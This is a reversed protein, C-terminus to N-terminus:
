SPLKRSTEKEVRLICGRFKSTDPFIQFGCNSFLKELGSQTYEDFSDEASIWGSIRNVNNAEALLTLVKLMEKAWGCNRNKTDVFLDEIEIQKEKVSFHLWGGKKKDKDRKDFFNIIFFNGRYPNIAPVNLIEYIVDVSRKDKWSGTRIVKREKRTKFFTKWVRLNFIRDWSLTRVFMNQAWSEILYKNIYDWTFFGVGNDGWDRGWSNAFYIGDKDYGIATVCHQGMSREGEAPMPVHGKPASIISEFIDISISAAHFHYIAYRIEEANYLRQYYEIRHKLANKTAAEPIKTNMLEWETEYEKHPFYKEECIGYLKTTRVTTIVSMGRNTKMEQPNQTDWKGNIFKVLVAHKGRYKLVERRIVGLAGPMSNLASGLSDKSNLTSVLFCTRLPFDDMRQIESVLLIEANRGKNKLNKIWSTIKNYHDAGAQGVIGAFYSTVIFVAAYKTYDLFEIIQAPAASRVKSELLGRKTEFALAGEKRLEKKFVNLEDSFAPDVHPIEIFVQTSKRNM